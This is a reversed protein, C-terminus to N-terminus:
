LDIEIEGIIIEQPKPPEERYQYYYKLKVPTADKPMEFFMFASKNKPDTINYLQKSMRHTEGKDDVLQSKTIRYESPKVKLDRKEVIKINILVFDSGQRPSRYATEQGYSSPQKFMEPYSDTREVEDVTIIMREDEAGIVLTDDIAFESISEQPYSQNLNIFFLITLSILTTSAFNLRM